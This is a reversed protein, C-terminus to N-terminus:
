QQIKKQSANMRRLIEERVKQKTAPYKDNKDYTTLLDNISMLRFVKDSDVVAPKHKSDNDPM